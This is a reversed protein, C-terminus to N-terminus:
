KKEIVRYRGSLHMMAFLRVLGDYYADFYGDEYPEHRSNWLRDIFEHAKVDTAALSAAASTAVFGVSHRLKKYGGAELIDAPQSGDINYQDVFSDIGQSYLFAQIRNAYQQQWQRDACSWSYDLAINMPVRWSDYRFADGLVGGRRMLSGDYNNYDPNLGTVPHISKHLYERSAKACDLWFQSRGDDAYKAWVEYFAPIHYSPDTFQGGHPDPTFTILKHEINILPAVDTMGTKQMSCDLINQAEALYNIGTDNGWLNSAFILSTVFYLEGDSAAGQSNPTGDTKCSWRFYGKRPGQQHQMYRKAWRWLRDFIDKKDWQVAIMMGYSMGETRVDHNKIDSIYAMDDGVEFYVKNPGFFLGDFASQLKADIDAQAYGMEAFLNRYQGTVFAGQEWPLMDFGIYDIEVNTGKILETKINNIGMPANKLKLRVVQWGRTAPIKLDATWSQTTAGTLQASLRITAPRTTNVRVVAEKVAETGFDVDDYEVAAGRKPFVTKWGLFYNTTDLFAIDAGGAIRSYRDIQLRSRAQSVGVGRLTPTVKQITGDANFYLRDCRASRLKDFNPSYDNHHYFLYWQGCYEVISHHNTWCAVPSEDMIVGKFEFPGMPSDGMAYALTETSDRVWPFTYYYKGGHSFVFPGEKFGEPLKQVQQPESDLEMMNDKLRAMWMGMGAWYIYAKGDQPDILVCPDIGHLGEIPRWMPMFPGEPHQAVAVGVGFGKREKGRPAAPFYFYYRGDKEVCDPAWMAYSDRQVWPVKNQTVIVGHDTWDTLNDSSFVHYDEMSFWKKEPEVPSVIDHSPYLYMRGNFVRATPDATYQDRIIPNQAGVAVSTITLLTLLTKRM